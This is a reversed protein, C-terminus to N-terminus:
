RVGLGPTDPMSIRLGAVGDAHFPDDRVLLSSDLDLDDVLPALQASAGISVATEANCGLGVRLGLSRALSIADKTATLGGWNQPKLVVGDYRAPAARLLSVNTCFEDSYLLLGTEGRLRRYDDDTSGAVLPEEVSSVSCAKLVPLLSTIAPWRWSANADVRLVAGPFSARVAELRQASEAVPEAGVKVKLAAAEAEAAFDLWRRLEAGGVLPITFFSMHQVAGDLGWMRWVPVGTRKGQQDLLAMELGAQAAPSLSGGSRYAAAITEATETGLPSPAAEGIGEGVRVITTRFDHVRVYANAFVARWSLTITEAEIM